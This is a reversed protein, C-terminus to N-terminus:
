AGRNFGITVQGDQVIVPIKLQGDSHKLMENLNDQSALVDVFRAEPHADRARKTHPCTTKGYIIMESM